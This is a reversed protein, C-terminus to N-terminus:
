SAAGQRRTGPASLDERAEPATITVPWHEGGRSSAGARGVLRVVPASTGTTRRAPPRRGIRTAAGAARTM